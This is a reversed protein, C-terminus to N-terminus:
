GAQACRQLAAQLENPRVPKTLYDNMGAELCKERDGQMADATLAIIYVPPKGVGNEAALREGKRIHHTAEIGGMEPMQLDMLVLDYTERYLADIAKIGNEVIDVTYGIKKLMLSVVMQNVTNDEAMLIKLPYQPGISVALTGGGRRDGPLPAGAQGPSAEWLVRMVVDHLQSQRVPKAITAQFGAAKAKFGADNQGISSLLILPLKKAGTTERIKRALEMGDMEPMMMDLVGLDFIGGDNLISLASEASEAQMPLMGWRKLQHELVRRNTENDDVVLVRKGQLFAALGAETVRASEPARADRAVIDFIFVSGEGPKSEIHIDGGMLEVLRKCIALGLGTGGYKRTTSSDAQTFPKFLREIRDPDIGIGTDKVEFHIKHVPRGLSSPMPSAKVHVAVEGKDTFKLANGVLNMLIQRLRSVDGEIWAPVGDEIEYVLELRKKNANHASIGLVDEICANLSLPESEMELHGSEIKSFDLIDNILVLLSEASNKITDVFEKQDHSLPTDALINAFGIVGNMPTRIEHSMVALFEGKARDAQEAFEKARILEMETNKRATIDLATGRYGIVEGKADLMPIGSGLVWIIEGKKTVKRHTLDHFGAKDKQYSAQTELVMELDEKYIFDSVSRGIMEDPTYGMVATVRDTLFTYKGRTDAEWIYEGSAGAVDRFRQESAQLEEQADRNSLEFELTGRRMRWVGIGIAMALIALAAATSIIVHRLAALQANFDEVSYDVGIVGLRTGKSDYIPAYGSMFTGFEDTYPKATSAVTGKHLAEVLVPDPKEYLDGILSPTYTRTTHLEAANTSTDLIFHVGDNELVCTYIYNIAPLARHFKILPALVKEHVDSGLQSRSTLKKHLDGDVIGAVGTALQELNHRVEKVESNYSSSYIWAVGLGSAVLVLLGVLMGERVPRILPPKAHDKKTKDM